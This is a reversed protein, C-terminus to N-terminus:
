QRRNNKPMRGNSNRFQHVCLFDYIFIPILLLPDVNDSASTENDWKENKLKKYNFTRM